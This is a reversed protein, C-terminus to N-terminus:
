CRRQLNLIIDYHNIGAAYVFLQASLIFKDFAFTHHNITKFWPLTYYPKVDWDVCGVNKTM